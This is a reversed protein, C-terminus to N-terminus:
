SSLEFILSVLAPAKWGELRVRDSTRYHWHQWPQLHEHLSPGARLPLRTLIPVICVCARVRVRVCARAAVQGTALDLEVIVDDYTSAGTSVTGLLNGGPTCQLDCVPPLPPHPRLITLSPDTIATSSCYLNHNSVQVMGQSLGGYSALSTKTRHKIDLKGDAATAEFWEFSDDAELQLLGVTGRPSSLAFFPKSM